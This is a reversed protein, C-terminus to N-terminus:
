NRIQSSMRLTNKFLNKGGPRVLASMRAIWFKESFDLSDKAVIHFSVFFKEMSDRLMTQINVLNNSIKMLSGRKIGLLIDLNHTPSLEILFARFLDHLTKVCYRFIGLILLSISGKIGSSHMTCGSSSSFMM